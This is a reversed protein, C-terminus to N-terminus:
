VGGKTLKKNEDKVKAEKINRLREKGLLRLYQPIIAKYINCHADKGDIRNLPCGGTCIYFFSCELCDPNHDFYYTKRRFIELLDNKEFITGQPADEGFLRHCFYISGDSYLAAANVANSCTQISPNGFKLDGFFHYKSFNYGSDIAKDFLDYCKTLTDISRQIDIEEKKVLSFRCRLSNDIVYQTFDLLGDLNKNSVVTMINPDCKKDRLTMVNKSVISFSGSGDKFHRTNDQYESLGDMSVGIGFSNETIFDIIEDTLLVANTLFAVWLECDLDKLEQKLQLLYPKWLDFRLFPEGGALRLSINTLNNTKTSQILKNCFIKIDEGTLYDNKGLTPIYCYSCRLCCGNTTHVWLGLSKVVDSKEPKKFANTYNVIDKESLTGCFQKIVEETYGTLSAIDTIARQNDIEELISYQNVNIIKYGDRICPNTILIFNEDLKTEILYPNKYPRAVNTM